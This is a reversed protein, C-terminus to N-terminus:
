KLSNFHCMAIEAEIWFPNDLSKRNTIKFGNYYYYKEFIRLNEHVDKIIKSKNEKKAINKVFNILSKLLDESKYEDLPNDYLNFNVKNESDNIYLYDIKIHKDFITYDLAAIFNRHCYHFDNYWIDFLSKTRWIRISHSDNDNRTIHQIAIRDEYICKCNYLNPNDDNILLENLANLNPLLTIKNDIM